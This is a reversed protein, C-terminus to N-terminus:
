PSLDVAYDGANLEKIRPGFVRHFAELKDRLWAHQEPWEERRTPDASRRLVVHSEKKGPLERWELETGLESEIAARDGALLHFHPKALPGGLLLWVGIERRTRVFSATLQFGARGIAYNTWHHPHPKHPKLPSHGEILRTRLASWYELALSGTATLNGQVEQGPGAGSVDKPIRPALVRRFTELSRRMWDYYTSWLAEATPDVPNRIMIEGSKMGPGHTWALKSGMEAEIADRHERLDHYLRLPAEDHFYASVAIRENRLNLYAYLVVGPTIRGCALSYHPQPKRPRLTSGSAQLYDKFGGWYRLRVEFRSPTPKGGDGPPRVPAAPGPWVKAAVDAMARGRQEIEPEGWEEFDALERTMVINSAKYEQRKVAFPKNHLEANYGTLTLNGPTHLWTSHIREYDPGLAARWPESLTQPMVHEVQANDLVVPEKHEYARELAELVAKKYRSGYLNFRGFAETFRPTDPFGREELFRRLGEVANEGLAPIAQVFM